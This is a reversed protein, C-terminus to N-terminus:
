LGWSLLFGKFTLFHPERYLTLWSPRTYCLIHPSIWPIYPHLDGKLLHHKIVSQAPTLQHQIQLGTPM